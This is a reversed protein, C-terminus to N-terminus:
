HPDYIPDIGIKMRQKIWEVYQTLLKDNMGIMSGDKFLYQGM